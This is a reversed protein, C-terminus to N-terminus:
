AEPACMAAGVIGANNLLSAAVVETDIKIKPLFKEAKKSVGGGVIILDPWFLHQILDLYREVREAYDDWSLFERERVSDAAYDEADGHHLHLHGLETNPVLAGNVFLASGIGTGLTVMVIVGSRGAGAGFRVEAVGAADADNVVTVSRGTADAFLKLADTGLWGKDINAATRTIGGSIVAPLTLGLPGDHGMQDLLQVVAGAIAAPTAPLPTLLRIRESTLAGTGLNVPAGKIGTGGIDIGLASRPASTATPETPTSRTPTSGTPTSGTPTPETPTSETPTPETPKPEAPTPETATM